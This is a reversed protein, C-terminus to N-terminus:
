MKASNEEELYWLIYYGKESNQKIQEVINKGQKVICQEHCAKKEYEDNLIKENNLNLDLPIKDM